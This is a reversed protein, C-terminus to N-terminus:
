IKVGKMYEKLGNVTAEESCYRGEVLIGAVVKPDSECFARLFETSARGTNIYWVLPHMMRDSEDVGYSRMLPIRVDWVKNDIKTRSISM